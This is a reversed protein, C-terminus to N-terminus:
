FSYLFEPSHYRLWYLQHTYARCNVSFQLAYMNSSRWGKPPLFTNFIHSRNSSALIIRVGETSYTLGWKWCGPDVGLIWHQDLGLLCVCIMIVVTWEYLVLSDGSDDAVPRSAYRLNCAIYHLNLHILTVALLSGGIVLLQLGAVLEIFV